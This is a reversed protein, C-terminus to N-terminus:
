TCETAKAVNTKMINTNWNKVINKELEEAKRCTDIVIGIAVELPLSSHMRPLRNLIETMAEDWSVNEYKDLIVTHFTKTASDDIQYCYNAVISFYVDIKKSKKSEAINAYIKRLSEDCNMDSYVTGVIKHSGPFKM